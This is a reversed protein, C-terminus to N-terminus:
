NKDVINTGKVSLKGHISLPTDATKDQPKTDEKNEVNEINDSEQEKDPAVTKNQNILIIIGTMIVILIIAIGIRKM